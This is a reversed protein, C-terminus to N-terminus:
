SAKERYLWINKEYEAGYLHLLASVEAKTDDNHQKTWKILDNRKKNYKDVIERDARKGEETSKDIEQDIREQKIREWIEETILTTLQTQLTTLTALASPGMEDLYEKFFKWFKLEQGEKLHKKRFEEDLVQVHQLIENYWDVIFGLILSVSLRDAKFLNRLILKRSHSLSSQYQNDQKLNVIRYHDNACNSQALLKDGAAGKYKEYHKRAHLMLEHNLTKLVKSKHDSHEFNIKVDVIPVNKRKKTSGRRVETDQNFVIEFTPDDLMERIKPDVANLTVAEKMMKKLERDGKLPQGISWKPQIIGGRFHNTAATRRPDVAQKAQLVRPTPQPKYVPPPSPQRVTQTPPQHPVRMKTQLVKPTPQPKYVPPAIPKKPPSFM